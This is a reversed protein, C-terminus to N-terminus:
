KGFRYAITIRAAGNSFGFNLNKSYDYEREYSGYYSSSSDNGTKVKTKQYVVGPLIEVGVVIQNKIVYNVGLVFHFNYSNTIYKKYPQYTSNYEHKSKSQQYDYGFDYGFCFEFNENMNKRFENGLSFGIAFNSQTTSDVLYDSKQGSCLMTNFRWMFKNSGKKLSLGFNDLNSFAFGTETQKIKEQAFLGVSLIIFLSLTITKKM